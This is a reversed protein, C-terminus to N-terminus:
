MRKMGVKDTGQRRITCSDTIVTFLVSDEKFHLHYVGTYGINCVPDRLLITDGKQEYSGGSVLVKGNLIGDYTGM